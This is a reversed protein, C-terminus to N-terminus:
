GFVESLQGTPSGEHAIFAEVYLSALMAKLLYGILWGGPLGLAGALLGASGGLEAQGGGLNMVAATTFGYILLMAFLLILLLAFIQLRKGRTLDRSRGFADIISRNEAVLAPVCVAWMSLLILAPIVFFMYGFLVGLGWLLCLAAVSLAKALGVRVCEEVSSEGHFALQILGHTGGAWSLAYAGLSVLVVPWFATELGPLGAKDLALGLGAMLGFELLTVFATFLGATPLGDRMLEIGRSLIRGFNFTGADQTVYAMRQHNDAGGAFALRKLRSCQSNVARGRQPWM